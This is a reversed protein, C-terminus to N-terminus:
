DPPPCVKKIIRLAPQYGLNLAQNLNLCAEDLQHLRHYVLGLNYYVKANQENLTLAKRYDQMALAFKRQKYYVNGRNVYAKELNPGLRIAWTYDNVSEDLRNLKELSFARQLYFDADNPSNAIAQNYQAVAEPYRGLRHLVMGRHLLSYPSPSAEEEVAALTAEALELQNTKRTLYSFNSLAVLHDPQIELAQRYYNIASITDGSRESTLGLNSFLNPDQSNQSLALEFHLQAKSYEELKLYCLGMMNWIDAKIGSQVTAASQAVFETGQPTTRQTGRFYVTSTEGLDNQLLYIFDALADQYRELRYFLQAREFRAEVQEPALYLLSQYDTLANPFNAMHRHLRARLWLADQFDFKLALAQDLETIAEQYRDEIEFKTAQRYHQRAQINRSRVAYTAVSDQSITDTALNQAQVISFSFVLILSIRSYLTM